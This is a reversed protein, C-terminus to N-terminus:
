VSRRAVTGVGSSGKDAPSTVVFSGMAQSPSHQATIPKRAHACAPTRRADRTHLQMHMDRGTKTRISTWSKKHGAKRPSPPMFHEGGRARPAECHCHRRGVPLAHHRRLRQLVACLQLSGAGPVHVGRALGVNNRRGQRAPRGLSVRCVVPSLHGTGVFDKIYMQIKVWNNRQEEGEGERTPHPKRGKKQFHKWVHTIEQKPIKGM